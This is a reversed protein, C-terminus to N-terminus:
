VFLESYGISGPALALSVVSSVGGINVCSLFVVIDPSTLKSVSALLGLYLAENAKNSSNSPKDNGYPPDYSNVFALPPFVGTLDGSVKYKFIVVFSSFVVILLSPKSLNAWSKPNVLGAVSIVVASFSLIATVLVPFLWVIIIGNTFLCYLYTLLKIM